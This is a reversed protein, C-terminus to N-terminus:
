NLQERARMQRLNSVRDAGLFAMATNMERLIMRLAAEASAEGEAALEWLPLRGLFVAEAGMALYKLVDTGRQVGSDALITLRGNM